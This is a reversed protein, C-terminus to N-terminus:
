NELMYWICMEPMSGEDTISFKYEDATELLWIFSDIFVFIGFAGLLQIYKYLCQM